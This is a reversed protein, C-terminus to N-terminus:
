SLVRVEQPREQVKRHESMLFGKLAHPRGVGRFVFSKEPGATALRITGFHLLTQLLGPVEVSVDQIMELRTSSIHRNFLGRQDVSIIRENTVYWVDLYYDTWFIALLVWLCLLWLLYLVSFLAATHGAIHVQASLAGRLEQPILFLLLPACALAAVLLVRGFFIFWHARATYLIQENPELEIM